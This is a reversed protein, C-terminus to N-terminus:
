AGIGEEQPFPLKGRVALFIHRNSSIVIRKMMDFETNAFHLVEWIPPGWFSALNRHISDTRCADTCAV